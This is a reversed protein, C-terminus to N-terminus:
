PFGVYKGAEAAKALMADLTQVDEETFYEKNYFMFYGNDATAPYAYLMGDPRPGRVRPTGNAIIEEADEVVPQFAGGNMLSNFQDDAFTSCM